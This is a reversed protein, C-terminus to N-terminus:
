AEDHRKEEKNAHADMDQRILRKLYPSIGEPQASLWALLEMDGANSKVFQVKKYVVKDKVYERMYERMYESQDRRKDQM